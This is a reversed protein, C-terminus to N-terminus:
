GTAGRGPYTDLTIFNYHKRNIQGALIRMIQGFPLQAFSPYVMLMGAARGDAAYANEDQVFQYSDYINQQTKNTM